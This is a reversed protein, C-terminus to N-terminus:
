AWRPRHAFSIFVRLFVAINLGGRQGVTASISGSIPLVAVSISIRGTAGYAQAVLMGALCIRGSAVMSALKRSVRKQPRAGNFM